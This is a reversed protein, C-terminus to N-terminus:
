AFVVNFSRGKDKKKKKYLNKKKKIKRNENLGILVLPSTNKQEQKGGVGGRKKKGRGREGKKKKRGEESVFCVQIHKDQSFSISRLFHFFHNDNGNDHSRHDGIHGNPEQNNANPLSDGGCNSGDLKPASTPQLEPHVVYEECLQQLYCAGAKDLCLSVVLTSGGIEIVDTLSYQFYRLVETNFGDGNKIVGNKSIQVLVDKKWQTNAKTEDKKKKQIRKNAYMVFCKNQEKKIKKKFFFFLSIKKQKDGKPPTRMEPLRASKNSENSKSNTLSRKYGSSVASSTKSEEGTASGGSWNSSSSLVEPQQSYTDTMAETAVRLPSLSKQMMREREMDM